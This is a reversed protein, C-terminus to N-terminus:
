FGWRTHSYVGGDRGFGYATVPAVAFLVDDGRRMADGIGHFTGEASTIHAGYKAEFATIVEELV